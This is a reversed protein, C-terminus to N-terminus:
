PQMEVVIDPRMQAAVAMAGDNRRMTPLSLTMRQAHCSQLDEGASTYTRCTGAAARTDGRFIVAVQHQSGAPLTGLFLRIRDGELAAPAPGWNLRLPNGNYDSHRSPFLVAQEMNWVPLGNVYVDVALRSQARTPWYRLTDGNNILRRATQVSAAVQPMAFSLYVKRSETSPVQVRAGFSMVATGSGTAWTQVNLRNPVLSPQLATNFDVRAERAVPTSQWDFGTYPAGPAGLASETGIDALTASGTTYLAPWSGAYVPTPQQTYGDDRAVAAVFVSRCRAGCPEKTFYAPMTHKTGTVLESVNIWGQAQASAALLCGLAGILAAPTRASARRPHHDASLAM